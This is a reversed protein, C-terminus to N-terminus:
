NRPPPELQITQPSMIIWLLIQSRTSLLQLEAIKKPMNVERMGLRLIEVKKLYSSYINNLILDQSAIVNNMCSAIEEESVNFKSSMEKRIDILKEANFSEDTDKGLSEENM